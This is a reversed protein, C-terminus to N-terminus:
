QLFSRQYVQARVAHDVAAELRQWAELYVVWQGCYDAPDLSTIRINRRDGLDRVPIVLYHYDENCCCAILLDAQNHYFFQYFGGVNRNSREQWTSAKVEVRLSDEVILDCRAGRSTHHVRFGREAIKFAVAREVMRALLRRPDPAAYRLTQAIERQKKHMKFLELEHNMAGGVPVAGVEV